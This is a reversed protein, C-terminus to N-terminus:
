GTAVAAVQLNDKVVLRHLIRLHGQYDNTAYHWVQRNDWIALSDNKWHMRCTFEPRLIHKFLKDLLPASEERTRGVFHSTYAPSIYICKRGTEPHVTVVPHVAEKVTATNSEAKKRAAAFRGDPDGTRAAVQELLFPQSHVAQLGDIEQKLEDTLLDYASATNAYCTDGGYPPIERAYLITGMCPDPRYSQDAHWEDGINSIEDPNKRIEEVEPHNPLAKIAPSNNVFLEGWRKGFDIYQEVTLRQDRFFVVGNAWLAQEVGSFTADDCNALDIDLVEAGIYGGVKNVKM